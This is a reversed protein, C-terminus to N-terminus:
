QALEALLWRKFAQIVRNRLAGPPHVMWYSGTPHAFSLPRCLVGAREREMIFPELGLAVGIGQEAVQIAAVFSDVSITRAPKLKPV